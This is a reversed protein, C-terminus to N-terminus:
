EGSATSCSASGDMLLDWAGVVPMNAVTDIDWPGGALKTVLRGLNRGTVVLSTPPADSQIVSVTLKLGAPADDQPQLGFVLRLSRCTTRPFSLQTQTSDITSADAAFTYVRENFEATIQGSYCGSYFNDTAGDANCLVELPVNKYIPSPKPPSSRTPSPVSNSSSSTARVTAKPSHTPPPSTASGKDTRGASSKMIILTIIGIVVLALTGLTTLVAWINNSENPRRTPSNM